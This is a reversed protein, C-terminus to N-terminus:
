PQDTWPWMRAEPSDPYLEVIEKMTGRFASKEKGLLYEAMGRMFLMSAAKPNSPFEALGDDMLNIVQLYRGRPMDLAAKGLRMLIRFDEVDLFGNFNYLQNGKRDLFFFSPTWFASYKSRIDRNILIDQRLPIFWDMIERQVEHDLYTQSYLKKCGACEDRHFQLFIGKNETRASQMAKDWDDMWVLNNEMRFNWKAMWSKQLNILEILFFNLFSPSNQLPNLIPGPKRWNIDTNEASRRFFNNYEPLVVLNGFRV